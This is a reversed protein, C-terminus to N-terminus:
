WSPGADLPPAFADDARKCVKLRYGADLRIRDANCVLAGPCLYGLSEDCYALPPEQGALAEFSLADRCRFRDPAGGTYEHPLCAQGMDCAKAASPDCERGVLFDSREHLGCAGMVLALGALILTWKM